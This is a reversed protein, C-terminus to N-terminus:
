AEAHCGGPNFSQSHAVRGIRPLTATVAASASEFNRIRLLATTTLSFVLLLAVIRALRVLGCVVSTPMSSPMKKKEEMFVEIKRQRGL